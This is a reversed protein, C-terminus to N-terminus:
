KKLEEIEEESKAEEETKDKSSTEERSDDKKSKLTSIFLFGIVMVVLGLGIWPLWSNQETWRSETKDCADGINDGDSDKQQRNPNNPCNDEVNKIGDKDFDDCVDGRGNKDIDKQDKNKDKICNDKLDPIQDDDIDSEQYSPNQMSAYDKTKKVGTNDNLNASENTKINIDSFRDPNLYIHYSTNPLALFRLWQTVTNSPNKQELNIESIRLPQVYDLTIDWTRANTKPFNISSSIMKSKAYVIKEDAKIEIQTPLAVYRDLNISLHSSEIKKTGRLNITVSTPKNDLPLYECYSYYNDDLLKTCSDINSKVKIPTLHSANKKNFYYPQFSASSIEFIAFEYRDILEDIPIEVVTPVNIDLSDVNIISKFAKSKEQELDTFSVANTYNINTFLILCLFILLKKMNNKKAL